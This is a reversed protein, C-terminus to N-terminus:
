GNEKKYIAPTTGTTSKFIRNFSSLSGFGCLDAIETLSYERYKKDTLKKCAEAIRFENVFVNFNCKFNENICKSVYTRNTGLDKAVDWINLDAKLWPKKQEFYEYLKKSYEGDYDIVQEEDENEEEIAIEILPKQKLGVIGLLLYLLMFILSLIGLEYSTEQIPTRGIITVYIGPIAMLILYIINVRNFNNLDFYDLNSYSNAILKKTRIMFKMSRFNYYLIQLVHFARSGKYIYALLRAQWNVTETGYLNNNMYEIYQSKSAIITALMTVVGIIIAPLFHYKWKLYTVDYRFAKNLYLFYFPYFALLSTLFLFDFFRFINWFEYFSVFHGIFLISSNFYFVSLFKRNQYVRDSAALIFVGGFLTIFVVSLLGILNFM